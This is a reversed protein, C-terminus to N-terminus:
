SNYAMELGAIDLKTMKMMANMVKNAKVRDPDGMLRGLANPVIQWTIGFKDDLWGCQNIKGGESLKEWYHDVEQQTECKVFFSIAPSPTFMPGGDLIMFEIGNLMFSATMVKGKAGPVDGPLYNMNIIKSNKFIATYFYVAEEVKGDFWLFPAIQQSNTVTPEKTVALTESDKTEM